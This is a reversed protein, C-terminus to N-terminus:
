RNSISGTVPLAGVDESRLRRFPANAGVADIGSSLIIEVNSNDYSMTSAIWNERTLTKTAASFDPKMIATFVEVRWNEEVAKQATGQSLWNASLVLASQLNDGTRTKAAGQYIYSLYYYDQGGFFITKGPAANQYRYKLVGKADRFRIFTTIATLSM